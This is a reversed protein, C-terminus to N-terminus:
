RQEEDGLPPWRCEWSRKSAPRDWQLLIPIRRFQASSIIARNYILYSSPM